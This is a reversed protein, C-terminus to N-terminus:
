SRVCSPGIIADYVQSFALTPNQSSSRFIRLERLRPRQTLGSTILLWEDALYVQSILANVSFLTQIRNKDVSAQSQRHKEELYLLKAKSEPDNDIAAAIDAPKIKGDFAASLLAAAAGGIPGGVATGLLPAFETIKEGLNKWDKNVEM